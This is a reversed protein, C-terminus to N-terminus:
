RDRPLWNSLSRIEGSEVIEVPIGELASPASRRAADTLKRLLLRIVVKGSGSKSYGVGHGVAEPLGLLFDDYRDKIDAVAAIAPDEVPGRVGLEARSAATGVFQVSFAHLVPDIPSALCSGDSLIAFLLGVAKPSGTQPRNVVLSGSDGAECFTTDPIVMFQHIFKAVQSDYRITATVNALDIAGHTLGTTRGAKTVLMGVSPTVTTKSLTGIGLITGNAYVQGAVTQAIAADMINYGTGFNLFEFQSLNAVTITGAGSCYPTDVYGTQIIAEGISAANSRALVHNNSLIYTAGSSDHVLSGLTGSSCGFLSRSNINSGSTGLVVPPKQQARNPAGPNFALIVRGINDGSAETFWLAGDPGTAIGGPNSNPTPVAYETVVGSTTIRGLMNTYYDTFWLAGDPGPAIGYSYTGTAPYSTFVGATSIRGIGGSSGETFWVAGDPGATIGELQSCCAPYETIVGATTIRGITGYSEAFWLAGDPGLTIVEPFAYPHPMPYETIVGAITIRGINNGSGETFWLAGDPGTAIGAPNSNPTPVAYETVVGSTTIRGIRNGFDDTFWLAGDPGATIRFPTSGPASYETVVGSTTIRGIKGAYFEAFWLAGDPGATIAIPNSGPTPVPYETITPQALAAVAGTILLV